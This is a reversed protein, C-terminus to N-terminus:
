ERYLCWRKDHGRRVCGFCSDRPAVLSDDGGSQDAASPTGDSSKIIEFSAPPNIRPPQGAMSGDLKGGGAAMTNEWGRRNSRWDDEHIAQIKSLYGMVKLVESPKNEAEKLHIQREVHM